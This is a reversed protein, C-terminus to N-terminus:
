HPKGITLRKQIIEKPLPKFVQRKKPTTESPILQSQGMSQGINSSVTQGSDIPPTVQEKGESFIINKILWYGGALIGLTLILSLILIISDKKQAM